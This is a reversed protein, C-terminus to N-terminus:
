DEDSPDMGHSYPSSMWEANQGGRNRLNLAGDNCRYGLLMWSGPSLQIMRIVKGQEGLFKYSLAVPDLYWNLDRHRVIATVISSDNPITCLTLDTVQCSM